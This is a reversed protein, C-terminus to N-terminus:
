ELISDLSPMEEEFREKDLSRVISQGVNGYQYLQDLYEISSRIKTRLLDVTISTKIMQAVTVKPEWNYARGHFRILKILVENIEETTLPALQPANRIAGLVDLLPKADGESCVEKVSEYEHKAEIM